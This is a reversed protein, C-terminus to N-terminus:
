AEKKKFIIVFLITQLIVAIGNTLWLAIADFRIGYLGWFFFILGWGILYGHSLSSPQASVYEKKIQIAIVFSASFGAVFGIIEFVYEPVFDLFNM